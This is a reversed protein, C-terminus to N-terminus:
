EAAGVISPGGIFRQFSFQCDASLRELLILASFANFDTLNM